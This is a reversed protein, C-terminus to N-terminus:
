RRLSAAAVIHRKLPSFFAGRRHSRGTLRRKRREEMKVLGTGISGEEGEKKEL